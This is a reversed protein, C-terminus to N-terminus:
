DEDQRRYALPLQKGAPKRPQEGGLISDLTRNIREVSDLIAEGKTSQKLYDSGLIVELANRLEHDVSIVQDVHPMFFATTAGKYTGAEVFIRHGRAELVRLLHRQKAIAPASVLHDGHFWGYAAAFRNPELSGKQRVSNLALSLLSHTIKSM